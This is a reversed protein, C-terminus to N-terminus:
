SETKMTFEAKTKCNSTLLEQGFERNVHALLPQQAATRQVPQPQNLSIPLHASLGILLLQVEKRICAIHRIGHARHVKVRAPITAAKLVAASLM